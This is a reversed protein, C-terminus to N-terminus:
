LGFIKKFSESVKARNEVEEPANYNPVLKEDLSVLARNHELPQGNLIKRVCYAVAAGNILAAGGLQPWSVITKGMELLSDQTRATVNEPGIHKTITKGIGFKDLSALEEYSTEGLRGQFFKLNPDLDYREIDVVANDGNDAAMVVPLKRKQAEVRILYKVALNDLEDIVLDLGDFFREINEKHLGEPFLEITTYPNIEYIRRAAMEVKLEGLYDVGMLVRNTNTLAFRDMDALKIHKPGGQLTLAFAVSSGVSLGGIGITANHFKEQEDSNILNRNRATRVLQFEKEELIHTLTSSWPFYVWIGHTALPQQQELASFYEAFLEKFGPQYVKTPNNIGFLELQQEKYDDSVRQIKGAEFLAKLKDADEKQSLRFFVPQVAAKRQLGEEIYDM